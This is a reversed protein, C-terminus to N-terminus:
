PLGYIQQAGINGGLKQRKDVVVLVEDLRIYVSSYLLIGKVKEVYLMCMGDPCMLVCAFTCLFWGVNEHTCAHAYM